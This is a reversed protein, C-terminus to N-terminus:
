DSVRGTLLFGVQTGKNLTSSLWIDGGHLRAIRQALPLGVGIGPYEQESHLRQFVGFLKDAYQEDFGVGNDEIILSAGKSHDPDYYVSIFPGNEAKSSFKLANDLLHRLMESILTKSGQIKPLDGKIELTADDRYSGSPFANWVQRILSQLDLQDFRRVTTLLKNYRILEEMMLGLRVAAKTSADLFALEDEDLKHQATERLLVSFSHLHRVPARLDHSISYLFTELEQKSAAFDLAIRRQEELNVLIGLTIEGQSLDQYRRFRGFMWQYTGDALLLRFELNADSIREEGLDALIQKLKERDQPVVHPLIGKEQLGGEYGLMKELAESVELDDKLADRWALLILEGSAQVVDMFQGLKHRSADNGSISKSQLQGLLYSEEAEIHRLSLCLLVAAHGSDVLHATRQWEASAGPRALHRAMKQLKEIEVPELDEIDFNIEDRQIWNKLFRQGAENIFLCQPQRFDWIVIPLHLYQYTKGFPLASIPRLMFSGTRVQQELALLLATDM